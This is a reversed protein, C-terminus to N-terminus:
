VSVLTGGRGDCAAHDSRWARDDCHHASENLLDTPDRRDKSAKWHAQAGRAVVERLAKGDAHREDASRYTPEISIETEVAQCRNAASNDM